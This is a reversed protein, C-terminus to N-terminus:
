MGRVIAAWLEREKQLRIARYLRYTATAAETEAPLVKAAAALQPAFPAFALLRLFNRRTTTM